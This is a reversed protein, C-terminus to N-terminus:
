DPVTVTASDTVPQLVSERAQRGQRWSESGHGHGHSRGRNEDAAAPTAAARAGAGPPRRANAPGPRQSPAQLVSGASLLKMM